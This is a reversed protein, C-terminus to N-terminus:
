YDEQCTESPWQHLPKDEIRDRGCWYELLPTNTTIGDHYRQTSAAAIKGTRDQHGRGLTEEKDRGEGSLIKVSNESRINEDYNESTLDETRDGHGVPDM